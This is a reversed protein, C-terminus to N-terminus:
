WLSAGGSTVADIEADTWARKQFRKPLESRDFFEGEKPQISGLKRGPTGGIAGYTM